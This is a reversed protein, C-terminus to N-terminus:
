PLGKEVQSLGDKFSGRYWCIGTKNYNLVQTITKKPKPYYASYYNSRITQNIEDLSLASHAVKPRIDDHAFLNGNLM